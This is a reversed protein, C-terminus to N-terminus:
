RAIPPRTYPPETTYPPVVRGASDFITVGPTVAGARRASECTIAPPQQGPAVGPTWLRCEGAPPLQGPPIVQGRGTAPGVDRTTSAGVGPPRMKGREWAPQASAAAAMGALIAVSLLSVKM